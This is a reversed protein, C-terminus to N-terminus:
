INLHIMNLILMIIDWDRPANKIITSIQKNWYKLFEMIVMKM